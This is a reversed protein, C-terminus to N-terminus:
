KTLQAMVGEKDIFGTHNWILTEKNYLHLVPLADVKLEKCLAQNSDADIRIVVVKDKMDKSIEELYPKMKKCPACWEAFFDILVLKDSQLLLRYQEMTMGTTKITNNAEPLNAGRWKMIGGNMDYVEKFGMSRMSRAAAASRGGSLCYVFVPKAKDIGAIQSSFSADNWNYNIAKNLHGKVFEGPTRVDIIIAEPTQNIKDAFEQVSLNYNSQQAKSQCGSFAFFLLIPFITKKM